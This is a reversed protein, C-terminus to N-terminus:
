ATDDKPTITFRSMLGKAYRTTVTRCDECSDWGEYACNGCYAGEAYLTRAVQERTAPTPRRAAAFGALYADVVAHGEAMSWGTGRRYEEALAEAGGTGCDVLHKASPYAAECGCTPCREDDTPDAPPTLAAEAIDALSTLVHATGLKGQHKWYEAATRADVVLGPTAKAEERKSDDM